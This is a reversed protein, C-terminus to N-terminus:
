YGVVQKCNNQPIVKEDKKGDECEILIKLKKNGVKEFNLNTVGEYNKGDIFFKMKIVSRAIDLADIFDMEKRIVIESILANLEEIYTM